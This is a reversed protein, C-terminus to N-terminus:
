GLTIAIDHGFGHLESTCFHIDVRYSANIWTIHVVAKSQVIYLQSGSTYNSREMHLM